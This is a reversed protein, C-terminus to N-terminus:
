KTLKLLAQAVHFEAEYVTNKKQGDGYRGESRKEVV